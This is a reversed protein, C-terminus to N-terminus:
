TLVAGANGMCNIKVLDDAASAAQLSRAFVLTGSTATIWKGSANITLQAGLAFAAGAIGWAEGNVAVVATQQNGSASYEGQVSVVAGVLAISADDDEGTVVESGMAGSLFAGQGETQAM